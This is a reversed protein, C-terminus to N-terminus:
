KVSNRVWEKKNGKQTISKQCVYGYLAAVQEARKKNKGSSISTLGLKDYMEANPIPTDNNELLNSFSLSLNNSEVIANPLLCHLYGMVDINPVLLVVHAEENNDHRVALRMITQYIEDASQYLFEENVAQEALSSRKNFRPHVGNFLQERQFEQDCRIAAHLAYHAMDTFISCGVIGQKKDLWDNAGRIKGREGVDITTGSFSKCIANQVSLGVKGRGNIKNVALFIPENINLANKAADVLVQINDPSQFWKKSALACICHLYLNPYTKRLSPCTWVSMDDPYMYSSVRASGNLITVRNPIRFDIRDRAISITQGDSYTYTRAGSLLAYGLAYITAQSKPLIVDMDDDADVSGRNGSGQSGAWEELDKIAALKEDNTISVHFKCASQIRNPEGMEILQIAVNRIKRINESNISAKETSDVFSKLHNLFLVVSYYLKPEEDIIIDRSPDIKGREHLRVFQEHAMIVVKRSIETNRNFFTCKERYQCDKCLTRQAVIDHYTYGNGDGRLAECEEAWFSHFFGIYEPPIKLNNLLAQQREIGTKLTDVVLYIPNPAPPDSSLSILPDVWKAVCSYIYAMSWQTKGGGCPVDIISKNNTEWVHSIFRSTQKIDEFKNLGINIISGITQLSDAIGLDLKHCADIRLSRIKGDNM